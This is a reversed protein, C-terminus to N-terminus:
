CEREACPVVYDLGGPAADAVVTTYREVNPIGGGTFAYTGFASDASIDDLLAGPALGPIVESLSDLGFTLVVEKKAEDVAGSWSPKAQVIGDGGPCGSIPDFFPQVGPAPTSPTLTGVIAGLHFRCGALVGSVRYFTQVEQGRVDPLATLGFRLQLDGGVRALDVHLLDARDVSAPATAPADAIGVIANADGARDAVVRVAPEDAVAQGALGVCAVAAVAGATTRVRGVRMDGGVDM